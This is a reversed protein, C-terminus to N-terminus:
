VANNDSEKKDLKKIVKRCIRKVTASLGIVFVGIGIALFAEAM